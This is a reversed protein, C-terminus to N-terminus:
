KFVARLIDAAMPAAVTGGSGKAGAAGGDEVVVAVAAVRGHVEGFATTWVDPPQGPGQEATGTKAGVTVGDVRARRGTGDEAVKVMMDRLINANAESMAQSLPEAQTQNAVTLDEDRESRVLRPTMVQGGNAIAATVLAMQLPTVKDDFQGIAAMATQAQDMKEPFTSPSVYLPISLEQGFGFKKAQQAIQNQGLQLGLWGFATNCSVTLAAALTMKGSGSCTSDGFNTLKASSQPLALATPAELQSDATFDGSELAAAATILKFTSGPAYLDGAIARNYLPHAPDEALSKYTETVAEADHVALSNPDFTPKSVLALIEGTKADLVVAAGRVDGLADWAAQQSAPDITLEVAGGTPEVGTFLDRLRTKISFLSDATGLLVKNEILELGTPQGVVTVYGTVPAYLQGNAYSRQYSYDDDVKASRAIVDGGRTMIPGRDRNFSDYFTRSNRADDRLAGAQGFQIVTCAVLLASIMAAAVATIRRIERNM